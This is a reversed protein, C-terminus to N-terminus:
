SEALTFITVKRLKLCWGTRWAATKMFYSLFQILISLLYSMTYNKTKKKIKFHLYTTYKEKGGTLHKHFIRRKKLCCLRHKHVIAFAVNVANEHNAKSHNFSQAINSAAAKRKRLKEERDWNMKFLKRILHGASRSLVKSLSFVECHM